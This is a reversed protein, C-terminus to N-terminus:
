RSRELTADHSSTTVPARTTREIASKLWARAIAGPRSALHYMAVSRVTM